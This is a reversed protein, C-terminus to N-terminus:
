PALANFPPWPLNRLVAYLIAIGLLWWGTSRPLPPPQWRNHRVATCWPRVLLLLATALVPLGFANYGLAARWDGHLLAAIGRTTGCGPCHWGTFRHFLCPAFIIGSEASLSPPPPPSIAVLNGGSRHSRIRRRRIRAPSTARHICVGAALTHRFARRANSAAHADAPQEFIGSVAM